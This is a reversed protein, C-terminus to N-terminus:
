RIQAQSLASAASTATVAAPSNPKAPTARLTLTLEAEHQLATTSLLTDKSLRSFDDVGAASLSSHTPAVGSEQTVASLLQGVSSDHPLHVAFARGPCKIQLSYPTEGSEAKAIISELSALSAQMHQKALGEGLQSVATRLQEADRKAAELEEPKM